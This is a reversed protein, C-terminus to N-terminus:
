SASAGSPQGASGNRSDFATPPVYPHLIRDLDDRTQPKPRPFIEIGSKVELPFVVRDYGVLQDGAYLALGAAEYGNEALVGCVLQALQDPTIELTGRM